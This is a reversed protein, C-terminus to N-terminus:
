YNFQAQLRLFNGAQHNNLNKGDKNLRDTLSYQATLEFAPVPQWEVGLETEHMKTFRADLENKKGGEYYQVKVFPIIRQNKVKLHYMAQAYGGHLSKLKITKTEPDFQPGKGVNYEAQFGFPKPYLIFSAAARHDTFNGGKIATSSLQDATVTYMGTYAQIGPEIVQGNKFAIPYSLRAVVNLNDNAEAKNATQGNYIGLGFVGYDGSGKLTSNTLESFRKRIKAPAWYFMVGLDRENPIGSNLADARDLTLRNSSSQMNEFGFPIKSQGVRFRFAKASDLALDFYADRLQAFHISSSGSPTTALDPQIYIYVRDSVSGSFVLRARRILFGSKEGISKDYESKLKSNTELLRNYRIQTYGRLSINQYWKPLVVPKPKINDPSPATRLSDKLAPPMVQATANGSILVFAILISFCIFNRLNRAVFQCAPSFM